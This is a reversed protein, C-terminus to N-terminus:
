SQTLRQNHLVDNFITLISEKLLSQKLILFMISYLISDLDPSIVKFSKKCADLIEEEISYLSYSITITDKMSDINICNSNDTPHTIFIFSRNHIRTSVIRKLYDVGKESYKYWRIDAKLTLIYAVSKHHDSIKCEIDNLGSIIALDAFSQKLRRVYTNVGFKRFSLKSSILLVCKLLEKRKVLFLILSSNAKREM